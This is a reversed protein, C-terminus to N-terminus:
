PRINPDKLLNLIEQDTPKQTNKPPIYADIEQKVEVQTKITEDSAVNPISTESTPTKFSNLEELIEEDNVLNLVEIPTNDEELLVVRQSQIYFYFVVILTVLVLISIFLINKQKPVYINYM